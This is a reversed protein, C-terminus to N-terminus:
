DIDRDVDSYDIGIEKENGFYWQPVYRQTYSNHGWIPRTSREHLMINETDMEKDEASTYNRGYDQTFDIARIAEQGEYTDPAIFALACSAALLFSLLLTYIHKM